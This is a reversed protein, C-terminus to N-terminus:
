AVRHAQGAPGDGADDNAGPMARSRHGSIGGPVLASAMQFAFYQHRPLSVDFLLLNCRTFASGVSRSAISSSPSPNL